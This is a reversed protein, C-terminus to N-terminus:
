HTIGGTTVHRDKRFGESQGGALASGVQLTGTANVSLEALFDFGQDFAVVADPIKQLM